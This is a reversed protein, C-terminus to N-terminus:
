ATAEVIAAEALRVHPAGTGVPVTGVGCRGCRGASRDWVFDGAIRDVQGLLDLAGGTLVAGKVTEALEGRRIMRAHGARLTARGDQVTVGVPDALYLGEPVGRLLDTLEGRGNAVYTNTLRAAPMGAGVARGNGTASAGARGATARTHVHHVVVGNRILTTNQASTGEQDFAITGRLGPVTGDDGVTLDDPGVRTGTALPGSADDMADAQCLHGAIRHALLGAAQQDLVVPLRASRMPMARLLEVARRAVRPLGAAWDELDEWTGPVARSALAQELAGDEEATALVSLSLEPRWEALLAGESTAIWTENVADTYRVRCDTIRRDADLLTAASALALARKRALPVARPDRDPPVDVHLQRPPVSALRIPSTLGLALSREHARRVAAPLDDSTAFSAAGWAHGPSVCRVLGTADCTVAALELRRGRVTVATLWRREIRIDTFAAPSRDLAALLAAKV